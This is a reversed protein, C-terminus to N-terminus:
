QFAKGACAWRGELPGACVAQSQLVREAQFWDEEPSGEPCGRAKWLARALAPTTNANPPNTEGLVSLTELVERLRELRTEVDRLEDEGVNSTLHILHAAQAHAREALQYHGHASAWNEASQLAEHADRIGLALETKALQILQRDTKLRLEDFKARVAM